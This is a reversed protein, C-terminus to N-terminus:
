RVVRTTFTNTQCKVYEGPCVEIVLEAEGESLARLVACPRESCTDQPEFWRAVRPKRTHFQVTCIRCAPGSEINAQVSILESEGVRMELPVPPYTACIVDHKGGTRRGDPNVDGMSVKDLVATGVNIMTPTAMCSSVAAVAGLSLIASLLRPM